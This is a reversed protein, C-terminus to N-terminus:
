MFIDDLGLAKQLKTEGDIDEISSIIENIQKNYMKKNRWYKTIRSLWALPLMLPFRELYKYTGKMTVYPPFFQKSIYSVLSLFNSKILLQKKEQRLEFVETNKGNRYGFVGCKLLFEILIDGIKEVDPNDFLWMKPVTMNMYKSCMSFLIDTLNKLGISNLRTIISDWNISDMNKETLLILDCLQRVGHGKYSLHKAMHVINYVFCDELSLVKAYTSVREDVEANDWPQIFSAAFKFEHEFILNSHVEIYCFPNKTFATVNEDFHENKYGATNLTEILKPFDEKHILLDADGMSRYEPVPYLFKLSLGKVVIVEIGADHLLELTYKIDNHLRVQRISSIFTGKKWKESLKDPLVANSKKIISYLLACVDHDLALTFLEEWDTNLCSEYDDNRIAYSLLTLFYKDTDTM